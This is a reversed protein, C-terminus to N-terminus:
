MTDLWSMDEHGTAALPAIRTLRGTGSYMTQLNIAGADCIMWMWECSGLGNASIENDLMDGDNSM